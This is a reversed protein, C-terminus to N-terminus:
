SKHRKSRRPVQDVEDQNGPDTEEQAPVAKSKNGAPKKRKAPRTQSTPKDASGTKSPKGSRKSATTDCWGGNEALKNIAAWADSNVSQVSLRGRNLLPMKKLAALDGASLYAFSPQNDQSSSDLRTVEDITACACIQRLLSLPVFHKLRVGFTLEVMWWTPESDAGRSASKPDYYPHTSDEATHDPYAEKSVEATAAIGPNKCNSHYFFVKDGIKMEKRMINKAEHNRVGEWATTRCAEFDEVSFKVDKGKIIRSDPEAKMLWLNGMLNSLFRVRTPRALLHHAVRRARMKLEGLAYDHTQSGNPVAPADGNTGLTSTSASHPSVVNSQPPDNMWMRDSLTLRFITSVANLISPNPSNCFADNIRDLMSECAIAVIEPYAMVAEAVLGFLIQRELESQSCNIMTVAFSSILLVTENSMEGLLRLDVEPPAGSRELDDVDAPPLWDPDLGALELLQAYASSSTAQPLLAMFYGVRDIHLAGRPGPPPPGQADRSIRLLTRLLSAAASCTPSLRLGRAVISALSFSFTAESAYSLSHLEDLQLYIEDLPESRFRKLCSTVTQKEFAKYKELSLLTAELLGTAESFLAAYGSQIIAIAIWSVQSLYRSESPLRVVAKSISRLMSLLATPDEENATALATQFAVLMQYFLDDDVDTTPIELLRGLVVFARSQVYASLQFATSTLLSMWRGRWTNALGVSSAGSSIIELLFGTLEELKVMAVSDSPHDVLVFESKSDPRTIGLVTQFEPDLTQSLLKRLNEKVEDNTNKNTLFAQVVNVLIGYVTKRLLIPGATSLVTVLYFIEPVYILIQVPPRNNQLVMYVLRAIAAVENWAVDDTPSAPPPSKIRTIARRLRAILKGKVEVSSMNVLAEAILECRPSGLGGDIASRTLEDLTANVTGTNARGLTEWVIKNVLPYFEGNKVTMDILARICLRVKDSSPEFYESNPDLFSALNSVWPHLYNLSTVQQAATAKNFGVVFENLFDLTLHASHSALKDSFYAAFASNNTPIFFGRSTVLRIDKYELHHCVSCLLEYASSRLQENEAGLNLLAVNLLTASIDGLHAFHDRGGFKGETNLNNKSSRVAKVIEERDRSAFLLTRGGDHRRIVFEGAERGVAVNYVDDIDRLFIFDTLKCNLGPYIPMPRGSAVRIHSTAVSVTVPTRMRQPSYQYVNSFTQLVERELSGIHAIRDTTSTGLSLGPKSAATLPALSDPHIKELLDSTASVAVVTKGLGLGSFRHYLKRLFKQAMNNPNVIYITRLREVFDFPTVEVFENIWQTPIESTASFARAGPAEIFMERISADPTRHAQSRMFTKYVSHDESTSRSLMPVEVPQGLEVLVNVLQDWQRKGAVTDNAHSNPKGTTLLDKGIKDVHSSFYRHLVTQDVEDFTTGLWEEVVEEDPPPTYHIVENLFRALPVINQELLNNLPILYPEKGFLVNNALNQIIKTILMLGRRIRANNERPLEIDVGEPSVITPCIFRLFMFSGVAPFSSEPWVDNVTDAIFNCVERIIPPLIPASECIVNLFAQAIISLSKANEEINGRGDPRKPDLEYSRDAPMTAMQSILPSLIQRLYNYGHMRAFASLVRMCMTNSRFISSESTTQAVEREILAKLLRILSKRTDFINLIVHILNEIEHAPCVNCMAMAIMIDCLRSPQVQGESKRDAIKFRKKKEEHVKGSDEEKDEQEQEPTPEHGHGQETGARSGAEDEITATEAEGPKATEEEQPDAGLVQSFVHIFVTRVHPDDHYAMSLCYKLGVDMNADLLLSLGQVTLQRYLPVDKALGFAVRKESCQKVVRVFFQFYRYFLRSRVNLADDESGSELASLQFRDLLLVVSKLCAANVESQTRHQADPTNAPLEIMAWEAFAELLEGRLQLEKELALFDRKEFLHHAMTCFKVRIRMAWSHDKPAAHLLQLLGRILSSINVKIHSTDSESEIREFILKLVTVVQEIFKCIAEDWTVDDRLRGKVLESFRNLLMSYLRPHLEQGLADKVTERCFLHTSGLMDVMRVIFEEVKKNASSPWLMRKPIDDVQVLDRFAPYRSENCVCCGGWTALFMTLNQWEMLGDQFGDTLHELRSTREDWRIFCESWTTLNITSPAAATRLLRRVRKQHAIRGVILVNPDGLADYVSARKLLLDASCGSPEPALELREIAVLQGLNRSAHTVIDQHVSTLAILCAVEVMILFKAAPIPFLSLAAKTNLMQPTSSFKHGTHAALERAGVTLPHGPPLARATAALMGFSRAAATRICPDFPHRLLLLADRVCRPIDSIIGPKLTFFFRTDTRFLALLALILQDKDTLGSTTRLAAPHMRPVITTGEPMQEGIQETTCQMIKRLRVATVNVLEDLPPQSPVRTVESALLLCARVGVLKVAESCEPALVAPFVTQVAVHPFFRFIAVLADVHLSVDLADLQEMFPKHPAPPNCLRNKVDDVLDPALSKIAMGDAYAGGSAYSAARALDVLCAMATERPLRSGSQLGKALADMFALAKRDKKSRTELGKIREPSVALLVTLTPWYTRLKGDRESQTYLTDFVREPAGDLRRRGALLDTYDKPLVEIWNWIAQRLANAIALKPKEKMGVLLSSIKCTILKMDMVDVLEDVAGGASSAHAARIWGRVKAFVIDWNSRSVGYVVRAAYRYVLWSVSEPTDSYSAAAPAVLSTLAPTPNSSGSGASRPPKSPGHMGAAYPYASTPLSPISASGPSTWSPSISDLERLSNSVASGRGASSEPAAGPRTTGASGGAITASPSVHTLGAADIAHFDPVHENYMLGVTRARDAVSSTQRLILVMVSLTYQAIEESLPALEGFSTMMSSRSPQRRPQTADQPSQPDRQADLYLQWRFSLAASLIKLIYFQSHLIDLSFFSDTNPQANKTIKDLLQSLAYVVTHLQTRSLQILLEVAQQLASDSEVAHLNLGSNCPLKVRLRNVLANIIANHSHPTSVLALSSMTKGGPQQPLLTSASDSPRHFHISGQMTTAGSSSPASAPM